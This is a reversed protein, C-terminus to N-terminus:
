RGHALREILWGPLGAARMLAQTAGIDYPVRRFEVTDAGLDLLMYSSDPNGDRPQGVSGPNLMLREGPLPLPGAAVGVTERVGAETAAFVMPFHTHGFLCLRTDFAPFNWTSNGSSGFGATSSPWPLPAIVTM